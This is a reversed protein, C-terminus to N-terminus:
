NREGADLEFVKFFKKVGGVSEASGCGGDFAFNGFGKFLEEFLKDGLVDVLLKEDGVGLEAVGDFFLEADGANGVGGDLLEHAADTALRVGEDAGKVGAFHSGHGQTEGVGEAAVFELERGVFHVGHDNLGDTEKVVEVLFEVVVDHAAPFPIAPMKGFKGFDELIVDGVNLNDLM